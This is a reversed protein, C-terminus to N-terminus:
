KIMKFPDLIQDIEKASLIKEELLMEKLTKKERKAKLVIKSALDYGIKKTLPTILALSMEAYRRCVDKNAKIGILCKENLISVGRTLIKISNITFFAILPMMMNLELPGTESGIVVSNYAGHVFACIQIMMEPIVPNVKGPIISSGAQLTPLEIENLGALPGSSLLRLDNSIKMLSSALTNLAGMLEVMCDRSSIYEFKNKAERFKIKTRKSIKECIRKGFEPHAGLGTGIATGGLPLACLSDYVKKIRKINSEIQSRYGSFEQALTMPVADQLHTRGIKIVGKFEREKVKFTKALNKLELILNDLLIRCAIQMASPIVDNSSQGMNVHDNPHCPSKGGKKGTLIENARGAIVENVNMNTSTGSGTQFIDLPFNDSLKGEYIEEGAKVIAKYIKEDLNSLEYNVEAACIKILAISRILEFPVKFDSVSFNELARQTHAGYYYRDLVEVKGFSDEEIRKGSM